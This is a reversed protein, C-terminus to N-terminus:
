SLRITTLIRPAAAALSASTPRSQVNGDPYIVHGRFEMGRYQHLTKPVAYQYILIQASHHPSPRGTKANIIVADHDKIAVLDPKGALTAFKGRFRFSNQNETFVQYGLAERSERTQNGAGHPGADATSPRFGVLTQDLRPLPGQVLFEVRLPERRGTTPRDM